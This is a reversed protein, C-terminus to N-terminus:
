YPLWSLMAEEGYAHLLFCFGGMLTLIAFTVNPWQQQLFILPILSVFLLLLSSHTIERFFIDQWMIFVLIICTVIFNIKIMLTM